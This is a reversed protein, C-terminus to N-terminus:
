DEDRVEVRRMTIEAHPEFPFMDAGPQQASGFFHAHGYLTASDENQVRVMFYSVAGPQNVVILLGDPGFRFATGPSPVGQIDEPTAGDAPKQQSMAVWVVLGASNEMLKMRLVPFAPGVITSIHWGRTGADESSSPKISLANMECHFTGAFRSIDEESPNGPPNTTRLLGAAAEEYNVRMFEGLFQEVAAVFDDGVRNSGALFRRVRKSGGDIAMQYGTREAVGDAIKQSSMNNHRWQYQALRTRIRDYQYPSYIPRKDSM